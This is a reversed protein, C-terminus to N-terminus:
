FERCTHLKSYPRRVEYLAESKLLTKTSEKSHIYKVEGGGAAM